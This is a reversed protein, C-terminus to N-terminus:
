LKIPFFTPLQMVYDLEWEKIEYFRSQFGSYIYNRYMSEVYQPANRWHLNVGMLHHMDKSIIISVPYLDFYKGRTKAWYKFTYYKGIELTEEQRGLNQLVGVLKDWYYHSSKGSPMKEILEQVSYLQEGRRILEEKTTNSLTPSSIGSITPRRRSGPLIISPTDTTTVKLDPEQLQGLNQAVDKEYKRKKALGILNSFRLNTDIWKLVWRTSKSLINQFM